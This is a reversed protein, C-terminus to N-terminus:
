RTPGQAPKAPALKAELLKLVASARPDQRAYDLASM